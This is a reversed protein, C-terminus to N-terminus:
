IKDLNPNDLPIPSFPLSKKVEYISQGNSFIFDVAGVITCNYFYHRGIADSLTDQVGIFGCNHFSAKDGGIFAAPAWTIKKGNDDLKILDNNYTNQLFGM